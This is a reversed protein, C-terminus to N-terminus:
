QFWVEAHTNEQLNAAYKQFGKGLFIELHSSRIGEFESLILLAIQLCVRFLKSWRSSNVTIHWVASLVVIWALLEHCYEEKVGESMLLNSFSEKPSSDNSFSKMFSLFFTTKYFWPIFVFIDSGFSPILDSSDWSGYEGSTHINQLLPAIVSYIM